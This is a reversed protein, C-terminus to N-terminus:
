DIWELLIPIVINLKNEFSLNVIFPSFVIIDRFVFVVKDCFETTLDLFFWM